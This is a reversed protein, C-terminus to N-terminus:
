KFSAYKEFCKWKLCRLFSTMDCGPFLEERQVSSFHSRIKQTLADNRLKKEDKRNKTCVFARPHLIWLDGPRSVLTAYSQTRCTVLATVYLLCWSVFLFEHLRDLQPATTQWHWPGFVCSGWWPWPFCLLYIWDDPLIVWLFVFFTLLAPLNEVPKKRGDPQIKLLKTAWPVSEQLSDSSVRFADFCSYVLFKTWVTWISWALIDFHPLTSFFGLLKAYIDGICCLLSVCVLVGWDTEEGM